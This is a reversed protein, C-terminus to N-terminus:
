QQGAAIKVRRLLNANSVVTISSTAMAVEALVPHMWGVIALPIMVVNYFFAWFLNQRIKRFTAQSLKVASVVGSLEGRVLTV